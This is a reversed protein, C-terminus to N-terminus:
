PLNNYDIMNKMLYEKTFNNKNFFIKSANNLIEKIFSADNYMKIINSYNTYKELIILIHGILSQTINLNDVDIIWKFSEVDYFYWKDNSYIHYHKFHRHTIMTM